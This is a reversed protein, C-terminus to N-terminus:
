GSRQWFVGTWDVSRIDEEIGHSERYDHVAQRCAPFCGYDDVILYGGISLKPYLNVLADMTSEYMDGDLRVVALEELPAEPLTDRFWGKLFRVQGDLLGYREFNDKVRDLSPIINPNVTHSRDGEDQPYKEADPPPFGEFSDAVWVRRDEVGHAKLISRMFITAGGRWVGTEILDGPVENKLVDEICFRLNDLRELGVLTHAISPNSRPLTRGRDEGYIGDTLCRKMLDLYLDATLHESITGHNAEANTKVERSAEHLQKYLEAVKQDSAVAQSSNLERLRAIERDRDALQRRITELGKNENTRQERKRESQYDKNKRLNPTHSRERGPEPAGNRTLGVDLNLFARLKSTVEFAARSRLVPM